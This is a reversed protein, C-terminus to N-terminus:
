GADVRRPEPDVGETALRLRRWGAKWEPLAEEAVGLAGLLGAVRDWPPLAPRDTRLAHAITSRPLGTRRQLERLSLGEVAKLARLEGIFEAVTEPRRLAEREPMVM